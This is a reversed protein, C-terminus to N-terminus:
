VQKMNGSGDQAIFLGLVILAFAIMMPRTVTEGLVAIGFVNVLVVGVYANPALFVPGKRRILWFRLSLAITTSLLAVGVLGIWPKLPPLDGDFVTAFPVLGFLAAVLTSGCMLSLPHVPPMLRILIASMALCFIAGLVALMPLAHVASGQGVWQAPETVVVLGLFGIFLGVLKRRTIRVGLVLVSLAITTLPILSFMAGVVNSPLQAQGHALLSYPIATNCLGLLLSWKWFWLRRPLGDGFMMALPVLFAAGLVVRGAASQLPTFGELSLKIFVFSLSLCVAMVCFGAWAWPDFEGSSSPGPGASM